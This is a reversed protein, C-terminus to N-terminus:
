PRLIGRAFNTPWGRVHLHFHANGRRRTSGADDALNGFFVHGPAGLRAVSLFCGCITATIQQCGCSAREGARQIPTTKTRERRRAAPTPLFRTTDPMKKEEQVLARSTKRPVRGQTVIIAGLPSRRSGEGRSTRHTVLATIQTSYGTVAHQPCREGHTVTGSRSRRPMDTM